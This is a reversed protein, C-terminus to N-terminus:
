HRKMRTEGHEDTTGLKEVASYIIGELGTELNFNCHFEPGPERGALDALTSALLVRSFTEPRNLPDPGRWAVVM